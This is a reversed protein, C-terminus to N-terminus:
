PSTELWLVAVTHNIDTDNAEASVLLGEGAALVIDRRGDQQGDWAVMELLGFNPNNSGALGSGAWLRGTAPTATPGSRVIAVPSADNSDAKQATLTTGATPTATTRGLRYQFNTNATSTLMASVTVRRVYVTKGSAAPNEISLLNQAAAAGTIRDTATGYCGVYPKGM